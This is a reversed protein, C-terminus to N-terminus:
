QSFCRRRLPLALSLLRTVLGLTAHFSETLVMPETVKQSRRHGTWRALLSARGVTRNTTGCLESWRQQAKRSAFRLEANPVDFIETEALPVNGDCTRSGRNERGVLPAGWTGLATCIVRIRGKMIPPRSGQPSNRANYFSACITNDFLPGSPPLHLPRSMRLKASMRNNNCQTACILRDHPM